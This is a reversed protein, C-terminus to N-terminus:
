LIDIFDDFEVIECDYDDTTTIVSSSSSSSGSKTSEEDDAISRVGFNSEYEDSAFGDSNHDDHDDDEVNDVNNTTDSAQYSIEGSIEEQPEVRTASQPASEDASQLADYSSWHECISQCNSRRFVPVSPLHRPNDATKFCDSVGKDSRKFSARRCRKGWASQNNALPSSAARNDKGIRRTTAPREWRLSPVIQSSSQVPNASRAEMGYNRLENSTTYDANREQKSSPSSHLCTVPAARANQCADARARGGKRRGNSEGSPRQDYRQKVSTRRSDIQSPATTASALFNKRRAEARAAFDIEIEDDEVPIDGWKMGDPLDAFTSLSAQFRNNNKQFDNNKVTVSGASTLKQTQRLPNECERKGNNRKERIVYPEHTTRPVASNAFGLTVTFVKLTSVFM